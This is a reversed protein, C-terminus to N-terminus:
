ENELDDAFIDKVSMEFEPLVNLDGLTDELTLIEESDPTLVVVLKKRTLVLIVVKVGVSLYYAAKKRMEPISDDPSQIEIGIDPIYPASGKSIIPANGLRVAVDPLRANMTDTKYRAEYFVRGTKRQKFYARLAVYFNGGIMEHLETPMRKEVIVGDILELQRKANEANDAFSDFEEVTMLSTNLVM